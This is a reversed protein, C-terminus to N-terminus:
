ITQKIFDIHDKSSKYYIWKYDGTYNVYKIHVNNYNHEINVKFLHSILFLIPEFTSCFYGSYINRHNYNEIAQKNEEMQKDSLPENNWLVDSTNCNKVKLFLVLSLPNRFKKINLTDLDTKNLSEIISNCFCAM